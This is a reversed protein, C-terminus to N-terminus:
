IQKQTMKYALKSIKPLIDECGSRGPALAYTREAMNIATVKLSEILSTVVVERSEYLRGIVLERNDYWQRLYLIRSWVPWGWTM